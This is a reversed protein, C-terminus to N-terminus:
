IDSEKKGLIKKVKNLGARKARYGLGLKKRLIRLQEEKEKFSLRYELPTKPPNKLYGDETFINKKKQFIAEQIFLSAKKIIGNELEM